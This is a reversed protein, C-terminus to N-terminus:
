AGRYLIASNHPIILPTPDSPGFHGAWVHPDYDRKVFCSRHAPVVHRLGIGKAMKVCGPFFPFEGETPHTTMFGIEPQLAAVANVLDAHDAFTNIPDGTFYLVRQGARVVYGLHTVDPPKIGAAPDGAPPKAYVVQVTMSGATATDGAAVTVCQDPSAGVANTLRAISEHPGIFRVQPFHQLIRQLTEPHTHDMHDHTLLVYDVPFDAEDVPPAGHVFREAPREHPFYPDILVTTGQPDKVAYSSQQFWHIAVADAAPQLQTFPHM